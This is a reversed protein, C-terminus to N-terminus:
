NTPHHTWQTSFKYPPEDLQASVDPPCDALPSILWIGVHKISHVYPASEQLSFAPLLSLLVGVLMRKTSHVHPASLHRM